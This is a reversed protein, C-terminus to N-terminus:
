STESDEPTVAYRVIYSVDLEDTIVGWVKGRETEFITLNSPVTFEGILKGEPDLVNWRVNKRGLNERQLWITGDHGVEMATVPVDYRVNARMQRLYEDNISQPVQYIAESGGPLVGFGTTYLSDLTPAPIEQPTYPVNVDLVPTGDVGFRQVRFTSQAGSTPVPRDVVVVEGKPAPDWLGTQSTPWNTIYAQVRGDVEGKMVMPPSYRLAGFRVIERGSRDLRILPYMYTETSDVPAAFAVLSGDGALVAVSAPGRSIGEIRPGRVALTNLVEGEPSFMTIRSQPSDAVWMSDGRFGMRGVSRFQGPGSGESGVTRLYQGEPSYIRVERLQAQNVAINGQPDVEIGVVRGFTYNEEDISGIRLEERLSWRIQEDQPVTCQTLGLLLLTTILKTRM